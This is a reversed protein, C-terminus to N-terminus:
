LGGPTRNGSASSRAARSRNAIAAPTAIVDVRRVRTRAIAADRQESLAARREDHMYLGFAQETPFQLIQVEYPDEDSAGAGDRVRCIVTGGHAAVLPLVRDEYDVLGAERGDHPWLLVCLTVTM